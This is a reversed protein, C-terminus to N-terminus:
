PLKIAITRDPPDNPGVVFPNVEGKGTLGHEGQHFGVVYPVDSVGECRFRGERDTVASTM